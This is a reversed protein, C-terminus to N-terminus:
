KSSRSKKSRSKRSRSKKSRSKRSRSKKSRSKRSRSKKSKGFKLNQNEVSLKEVKKSLSKLSQLMGELTDSHSQPMDGYFGHNPNPKLPPPIKLTYSKSM